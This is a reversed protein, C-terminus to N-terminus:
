ALPTFKSCIVYDLLFPMFIMFIKLPIIQGWAGGPEVKSLKNLKAHMEPNFTFLDSCTSNNGSMNM